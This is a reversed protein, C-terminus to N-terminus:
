YNTINSNETISYNYQKLKFELIPVYDWQRNPQALNIKEKQKNLVRKLRGITSLRTNHDQQDIALLTQTCHTCMHPEWFTHGACPRHVSCKTHGFHDASNAPESRFSCGGCNIDQEIPPEM